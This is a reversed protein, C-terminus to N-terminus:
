IKLCLGCTLFDKLFLFLIFYWNLNIVKFFIELELFPSRVDLTQQRASKTDCNNVILWAMEQM